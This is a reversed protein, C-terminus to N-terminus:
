SFYVDLNKVNGLQTRVQQYSESMLSVGPCSAKKTVLVHREIYLRWSGIQLVPTLGSMLLSGEMQGKPLLSFQFHKNM